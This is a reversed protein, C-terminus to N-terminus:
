GRLTYHEFFSVCIKTHKIEGMVRQIASYKLVVIGSGMCCAAGVGVVVDLIGQGEKDLSRLGLLSM